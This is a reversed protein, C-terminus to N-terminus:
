ACTLAVVPPAYNIGRKTKSGARRFHFVARCYVFYYFFEKSSTINFRASQGGFCNFNIYCTGGAAFNAAPPNTNKQIGLLKCFDASM